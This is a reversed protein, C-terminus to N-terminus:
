AKPNPIYLALWQAAVAPTEEGEIEITLAQQILFGPSQPQLQEFAMRVRIKRGNKVPTVFRLKDFGYNIMVGHDLLGEILPYTLRPLLSVVLFGHAITGGFPTRAAAAEPDVHIFQHDGTVDAFQNILNQDVTVWDSVLDKDTLAQLEPPITSM